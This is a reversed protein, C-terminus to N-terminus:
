LYHILLYIIIFLYIVIRKKKTKVTRLIIFLITKVDHEDLM